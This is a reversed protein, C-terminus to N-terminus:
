YLIADLLGGVTGLAHSSSAGILESLGGGAAFRWLAGLAVIMALLVVGVLAYEVTAQGLERHM